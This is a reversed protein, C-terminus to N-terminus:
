VPWTVDIAPCEELSLVKRGERRRAYETARTWPLLSWILRQRAQCVAPSRLAREVGPDAEGLLNKVALSAELMATDLGAPEFLDEATVPMVLLGSSALERNRRIDDVYKQRVAAVATSSEGPAAAAVSALNLHEHGDYNFGIKQGCIEIDPVRSAHCGMSILRADNDHRANLHVPGLGYGLQEVPLEALLAVVAEMPSWANDCVFELIDLAEALGRIDGCEQTFARIRTATTAPAIDYSVGGCRPDLADRSYAGCLEMGVLTLVEPTMVTALEIFLLEPCPVCLGDGFPIFSNEPLGTTYVTNTAFSAQIRATPSPSAVYVHVSGDPRQSLARIVDPLAATSWRKRPAVDPTPLGCRTLPIRQRSSRISRILQLATLKNVCLRM